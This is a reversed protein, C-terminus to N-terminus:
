NRPSTIGEEDSIRNDADNDDFSSSSSDLLSPHGLMKPEKNVKVM